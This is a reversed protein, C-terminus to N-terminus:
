KLGFYKNFEYRFTNKKINKLGIVIACLQFNDVPLIKCKQDYWRM